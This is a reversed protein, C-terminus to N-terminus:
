RVCPEVRNPSPATSGQLSAATLSLAQGHAHPRDRSHYILSAISEESPLSSGSARHPPAARYLRAARTARRATPRIDRDQEPVVRLAAAPLPRPPASQPM